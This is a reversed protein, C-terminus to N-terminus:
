LLSVPTFAPSASFQTEYNQLDFFRNYLGGARALEQHCGREIIRGGEVVLIQDARQAMALRHAIVITTRGAMLRLLADWVLAETEADLGVTPEDLLLIPAARVIARAIAIRQRQGGSLTVGREGVITEYGEPLACIFEHAHAAYAAEM